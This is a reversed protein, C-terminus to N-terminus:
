LAEKLKTRILDILNQKEEDPVWECLRAAAIPVMWEELEGATIRSGKLYHKTYRKALQNRIFAFLIALMAPTGDPLTGMRLLLITRAVDGAPNGTMGTMWDIVWLRQGIIVNDPHFDGHCLRQGEPLLRLREVIKSKEMVTLLPADNIKRHLLEKQKPLGKVTRTHMDLHTQSLRSAETWVSWPKKIIRSLMTEGYAREYVIGPRDNMETKKIPEPVTMGSQHVQLSIEYEENVLHVPLGNKFLKLVHKDDYEILDATRGFALIKTTQLM